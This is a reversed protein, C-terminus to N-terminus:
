NGRGLAARGGVRTQGLDANRGANAGAGFGGVDGRQYSGRAKGLKGGWMQEYAANVQEKRSVLVLAMDVGNAKAEAVTKAESDRKAKHLRQMATMKFGAIFHSMWTGKNVYRPINERAAAFSIQTLMSTYLMISAEVDRSFGTLWLTKYNISRNDSAAYRMPQNTRYDIPVDTKSRRQGRGGQVTKVNNVRSLSHLLNMKPGVNPESILFAVTIVSDKAEEGNHAKVDFETLAYKTLLEQAKAFFVQAEEQHETSEAKAILAAIKELMKEKNDM